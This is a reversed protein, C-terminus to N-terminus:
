VKTERAWTPVDHAQVMYHVSLHRSDHRVGRNMPWGHRVARGSRVLAHARVCTNELSTIRPPETMMLGGRGHNSVPQFLEGFQRPSVSNLTTKTQGM